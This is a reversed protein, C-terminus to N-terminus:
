WSHPSRSAVVARSWRPWATSTSSARNASSVPGDDHPRQRRPVRRCNNRATRGNMLVGIRSRPRRRRRCRRSRPLPLRGPRLRGSEVGAAKAREAVLTGVKAAAEVGGTSGGRLDDRSRRHRRSRSTGRRRRHGARVIHKNSRFVALRPREATGTCRAACETQPLERKHKANSRATGETSTGQPSRVSRRSVDLHHM